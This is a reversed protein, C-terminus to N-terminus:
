KKFYCLWPCRQEAFVKNSHLLEFAEVLHITSSFLLLLLSTNQRCGKKCESRPMLKGRRNFCFTSVPRSDWPLPIAASCTCTPSPPSPVSSSHVPSLRCHSVALSQVWCSSGRLGPCLHCRHLLALQPGEPISRACGLGPSPTSGACLTLSFSGPSPREGRKGVECLTHLNTLVASCGTGWRGAHM